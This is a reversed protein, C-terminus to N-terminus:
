KKLAYRFDCHGAGQMIIPTRTLRIGDSFGETMPFDAGCVLLFGLEPDGIEHFFKANRCGTRERRAYEEDAEGRQLRACRRRRVLRLARGDERGSRIRAAPAVM